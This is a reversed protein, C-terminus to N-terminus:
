SALSIEVRGRWTLIEETVLMNTHLRRYTSGRGEVLTPCHVTVEVEVASAARQASRVPQLVALVVMQEVPEPLMGVVEVSAAVELWELLAQAGETVVAM